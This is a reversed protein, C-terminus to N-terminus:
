QLKTKVQLAETLSPNIQLARNVNVLAESKNGLVTQAQAVNTLTGPNLIPQKAITSITQQLQAKATSDTPNNEVQTTLQPLKTEADVRQRLDLAPQFDPNVKLAQGIRDLADKQDGLALAARATLTLAEPDTSRQSKTKEYASQLKARANPDTPNQELALVAPKMQNTDIEVPGGKLKTITPWAILAACILFLPLLKLPDRGKILLIVLVFFLIVGLVLMVLDYIPLGAILAM